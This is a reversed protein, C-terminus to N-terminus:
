KVVREVGAVLEREKDPKLFKYIFLFSWSKRQSVFMIDPERNAGSGFGRM